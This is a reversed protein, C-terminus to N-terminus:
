LMPSQRLRREATPSLCYSRITRQTLQPTSQLSDWALRITCFWRTAFVCVATYPGYDMVHVLEM